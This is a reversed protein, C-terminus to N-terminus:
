RRPVTVTLRLRWVTRPKGFALRSAWATEYHRLEAQNITDIAIVRFCAREYAEALTQRVHSEDIRAFGLRDAQGADRREDHSFVIEITANEASLCRLNGLLMPDPLAIGRLLSGWPLVISLRNAIGPLEKALVEVPEAICILNSIGGRQPKRAARAASTRLADSNLDTAM